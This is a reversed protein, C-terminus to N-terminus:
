TTTEGTQVDLEGAVATLEECPSAAGCQKCWLRKHITKGCDNVASVEYPRHREIAVRLAAETRATADELDHDPADLWRVLCEHLTTM